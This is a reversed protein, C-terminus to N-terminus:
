QVSRPVIELDAARALDPTWLPWEGGTKKGKVRVVREPEEALLIPIAGYADVRKVRLEKILANVSWPKDARALFAAIAHAVGASRKEDRKDSKAAKHAAASVHEGKEAWDGSKGDFSFPVVQDANGMRAKGVSVAVEVPGGDPSETIEGISLTVYAARELQSSEAGTASADVGVAEGKRLAAAGLRSSQSVLAIVVGLDKALARLGEVVNKIREREDRGTSAVLQVYDVVVLVLQGPYERQIAVVHGRVAAVTVSHDDVVRIRDQNLVARMTADDVAGRLAAFWSVNCVRSIRRAALEEASLELSVMLAPGLTAAHHQAIQLTLTSKGSGPGGIILLIHGGMLPALEDLTPFGTRFIPRDRNRQLRPIIDILPLGAAPLRQAVRRYEGDLRTLREIGDAILEDVEDSSRFARDLLDSAELAFRRQIAKDQVTRAYAAVNDATPVRLTLEGLFAVGGIADLKGAKVIETEVTVVDIPCRAAQLNRMAQFVVKHKLDYFDDPELTDIRALADNRLLIGGLISQEADLDHPLVRHRDRPTANM